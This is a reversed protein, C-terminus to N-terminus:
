HSRGMKSTSDVFTLRRQSMLVPNDVAFIHDRDKMRVLFKDPKATDKEDNIAEVATILHPALTNKPEHLNKDDM